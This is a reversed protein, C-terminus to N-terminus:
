KFFKVPGIETHQVTFRQQQDQLQSQQQAQLQSQRQALVMMAQDPHTYLCRNRTRCNMGWKCPYKAFFAKWRIIEDQNAPHTQRCFSGFKCAGALFSLCVNRSSQMNISSLTPSKMVSPDEIKNEILQMFEPTGKAVELTARKEEDTKGDLMNMGKLGRAVAADKPDMIWPFETVAFGHAISPTKPLPVTMTKYTPLVSPVNSFGRRSRKNGDDSSSSDSYRRRRRRREKRGRRDRDKRRRRRRSRSRSKSRDRSRDHNKKRRSSSKDDPGDVGELVETEARPDEHKEVHANRKGETPSASTNFNICAKPDGIALEQSKPAHQSNKNTIQSGRPEGKVDELGAAADAM